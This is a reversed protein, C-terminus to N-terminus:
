KLEVRDDRVAGVVPVSQMDHHRLCSPRLPRGLLLLQRGLPRTLLTDRRALNCAQQTTVLRSFGAQRHLLDASLLLTSRRHKRLRVDVDHLAAKM